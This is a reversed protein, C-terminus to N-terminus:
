IDWQQFPTPFKKRRKKQGAQEIRNQGAQRSPGQKTDSHWSNQNKISWKKEKVTMPAPLIIVNKMSPTTVVRTPINPNLPFKSEMTTKDDGSISIFGEKLYPIPGLPPM